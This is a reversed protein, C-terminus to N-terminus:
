FLFKGQQLFKTKGRALFSMIKRSSEKLSEKITGDRIAVVRDDFALAVLTIKIICGTPAKYLHDVM